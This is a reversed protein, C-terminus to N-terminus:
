GAVAPVGADYAKCGQCEQRPPMLGAASRVAAPDLLGDGPNGGVLLAAQDDPVGRVALEVAVPDRCEHETLDDAHDVGLSLAEFGNVPNM